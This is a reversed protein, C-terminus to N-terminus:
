GRFPADGVSAATAFNFVHLCFIDCLHLTRCAFKLATSPYKIVLVVELIMVLILVLRLLGKTMMYVKWHISNAGVGLFNLEIGDRQNNQNPSAEM